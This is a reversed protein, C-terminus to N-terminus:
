KYCKIQKGAYIFVADRNDVLSTFENKLRAVTSATTRGELILRESASLFLTEWFNLFHERQIKAAIRGDLISSIDHFSMQKFGARLALNVLQMGIDPNGGMAKQCQNFAEWYSRIHPCPPYVYLGSNFVETCYLMGGPKLVRYAEGLIALPDNAHELVCFIAVGDYCGSPFPLNDASAVVLHTKHSAILDDLVRTARKIQSETWDIGDILLHPFKKALVAIQAGVGCGMELIRRCDTFDITPYFYPELFHAQKLLRDQEQKSFTHIYERHTM